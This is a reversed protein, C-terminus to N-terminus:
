DVYILENTCLLISCYDVWANLERDGGKGAAMDGKQTTLATQRLGEGRVKQLYALGIQTERVTVPRSYLREYLWAIRQPDTLGPQALTFRALVKTQSIVFANNMLFLAQPAVTSVVRHDVSSTPDATDFLPAYGSRDSRITMVYLTRRLTNFDRSAVGGMTSDLSGSVALLTDRIAEAELRQRNYRGILRNDPDTRVTHPDGESSQQYASSLMILRHLKKLSWGCGATKGADSGSAKQVFVSALWDLLEPHTPREGLMGFNSPTRVIGEGFHHQWVRNVIVRATLPHTPSTLWRALELRGSEGNGIAPQNVGAIIVPFHRPVMDGLRDYRGRIHVRVDHIGATPSDPIGGEQIGNAIGAPPPVQSKLLTLNADAIKIEERTPASLVSVDDGPPLFPSGTSDPVFASQFRQAASVIEDHSKAAANVKLFLALEKGSNGALRRDRFIDAMDSFRWVGPNGFSDARPNSRAPETMMERTLDWTRGKGAEAVTFQVITTDCTYDAKPLVVLQLRDGPSVHISQLAAANKGKTFEQAGGNPFDGSAIEDTGLPAQHDVAWAIGDGGNPDGDAVKGTVQVNGEIPSVWEVAVGNSPGPHVAVSRAPVTLTTISIPASTTNILMNPCDPKGRWTYVGKIGSADTTASSMLPYDRGRLLSQWRKFVAADLRRDAAFQDPNTAHAATFDTAAILYNSTQPQLSRAYALLASEKLQKLRAAAEAVRAEAVTREAKLKPTELPIRLMVEGQGKPTLRPLIHSSFFIGAMGYYDKTALPDFKHDHCRACGLTLGMFGRSVIDVQDDAIDTVLKEKDADGNGWNGIALLGTAITGSVNLRSGPDMESPLLDGAIQNVVFKDYGMDNNLATVVWDRYRWAESIDGESGLGRADASDAYRAVDLWHRGWREGYAPSALLRDIIRAYAGPSKDALFANVEQPTPPLGTLDFTARRILTRKSATPAPKLGLPELKALVFADIPNKVWQKQKVSPVTPTKVPKFSWFQKQAATINFGTAPASNPWAAGRQVWRTLIAISDATLKGEPPMQIKGSYRIAQILASKDPDGPVVIKNASADKLLEPYSDLRIGGKQLKDGHCAFCKDYLIPRVKAEFFASDESSVIQSHASLSSLTFLGLALALLPVMKKPSLLLKLRPLGRPTIAAEQMLNEAPLRPLSNLTIPRM